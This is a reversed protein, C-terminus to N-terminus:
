NHVVHDKMNYITAASVAYYGVLDSKFFGKNMVKVEILSAEIDKAKVDGTDFFL